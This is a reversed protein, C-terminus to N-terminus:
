MQVWNIEQKSKKNKLPRCSPDTPGLLPFITLVKVTEWYEAMHDLRLDQSPSTDWPGWPSSSWRGAQKNLPKSVQAHLAPHSSTCPPSGLPPLGALALAGSGTKWDQRRDSGRIGKNGM